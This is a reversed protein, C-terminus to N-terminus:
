KSVRHLTFTDPGDVVTATNGDSSIDVSMGGPTVADSENLGACGNTDYTFSAVRLVNAAADYTYAASEVGPGGCPSPDTDGLPDVMLYQGNPFFVFHQTNITTASGLAWVGVIGTPDNEAKGVTADVISDECTAPATRDETFILEDGVSRWRDCALPHSLGFEGNTDVTPVPSPLQYGFEDFGSLTATGYEVGTMGTDTPDLPRAEGHLYQGDAGFRLFITEATSPAGETQSTWVNSGLLAFGQALYHASADELTVIPTTIGGADRATQLADTNLATPDVTLDIASTVAAAAASPISIGNSPDGDADLSQLVVLLNDLKNRNGAALETPTVIGTATVDGLVLSGLTFRVTDGVDYDYSGSADTVGTKGSPTSVYTVGAVESDTLIGTRPEAAPGAGGGTGTGSGGGSGSGGGGGGGSGGGCGAVIALATAALVPLCRQTTARLTAKNLIAGGLHQMTNKIM